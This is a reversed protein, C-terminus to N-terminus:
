RLPRRRPHVVRGCEHDSAPTADILIRELEPLGARGRLQELADNATSTGLKGLAEIALARATQSLAPLSDVIGDAAASCRSGGAARIAEQQVRERPDHLLALLEPDDAFRELRGLARLANGAVLPDASTVALAHLRPAEADGAERCWRVIARIGAPSRSDFIPTLVREAAIPTLDITLGSPRGPARRDEGVCSDQSVLRLSAFAAGAIAAGTLAFSIACSARSM